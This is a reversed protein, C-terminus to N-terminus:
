REALLRLAQANVKAVERAVELFRRESAADPQEIQGSARQEEAVTAGREWQEKKDM